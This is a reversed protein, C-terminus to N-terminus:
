AAPMALAVALVREVSRTGDQRPYAGADIMYRWDDGGPVTGEGQQREGTLLARTLPGHEDASKFRPLFLGTDAGCTAYRLRLKPPVQDGRALAPLESPKHMREMVLFIARRSLGALRNGAAELSVDARAALEEVADLGRLAPDFEPGSM